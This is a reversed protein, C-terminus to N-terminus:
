CLYSYMETLYATIDLYKAEIESVLYVQLAGFFSREAKPRM